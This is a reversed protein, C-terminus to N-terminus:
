RHKSTCQHVYQACLMNGYHCTIQNASFFVAIQILNTCPKIQNPFFCAPPSFHWHTWGSDCCAGADLSRRFVAIVANNGDTKRSARRWRAVAALWLHFPFQTGSRVDRTLCHASLPARGAESLLRLLLQIEPHVESRQSSQKVCMSACKAPLLYLKILFFGYVAFVDAKVTRM